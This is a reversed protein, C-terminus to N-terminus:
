QGYTPIRSQKTSTKKETGKKALYSPGFNLLHARFQRVNQYGESETAFHNQIYATFIHSVTDTPQMNCRRKIQELFLSDKGCQWLAGAIEAPTEIKFVRESSYQMKRPVLEGVQDIVKIWAVPFNSATAAPAVNACERMINKEEEKLAFNQGTNLTTNAEDPTENKEIKISPNLSHTKKSKIEKLGENKLVENTLVENGIKQCPPITNESLPTYYKGIPPITNESLPLAEGKNKLNVYVSLYETEISYSNSTQGADNRREISKILGKKICSKKVDQLKSLSWGTDTCLKKNSPWCFSEKGMRKAIHCMLWFEGENVQYLIRDDVNIM